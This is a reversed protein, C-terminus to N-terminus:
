RNFLFFPTVILSIQPQYFSSYIERYIAQSSPKLNRNSKFLRRWSHSSEQQRLFSYNCFIHRSLARCPQLQNKLISSVVCPGRQVAGLPEVLRNLSHRFKPSTKYLIMKTGQEVECLTCVIFTCFKTKRFFKQIM